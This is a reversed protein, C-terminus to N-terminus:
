IATLIIPRGKTILVTNEFLGSLSHDRTRLTWGDADQVLPHDGMAYMAEIAITQGEKLIDRRSGPDAFCPISPSEHLEKGVGHGTLERIPTYSDSRIVSEMASSIHFVSNEPLAMAVAAALAERGVELFQTIKTNMPPVQVTFASDTHFGDHLIGIDVSVLDGPEVITENPIGHVIGDNLNICTAHSYGKVTKFSAIDGYETILKDAISDLEILTIGPKISEKIALLVTALHKGGETMAPIKDTTM